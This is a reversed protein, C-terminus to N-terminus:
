HANRPSVKGAQRGGTKDVWKIDCSVLLLVTAQNGPTRGGNAVHNRETYMAQRQKHADSTIYLISIISFYIPYDLNTGHKPRHWCPFSTIISRLTLSQHPFRRSYISFIQHMVSPYYINSILIQSCKTTFIRQEYKFNM